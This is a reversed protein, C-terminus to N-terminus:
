KIVRPFSIKFISGNSDTRELTIDGSYAQLIMKVILLGLGLGKEGVKKSIPDVFIKSLHHKSVGRGNDEIYIEINDNIAVTSILINKQKSDSVAEVANDIIIDVVRAFWQPSTRVLIEHDMDLNFLVNVDSHLQGEKLQSVREQLLDNINVIEIGDKSSLPPAIPKELIKLAQREIANLKELIYKVDVSNNTKRRILTVSNFINIAYGELSHRWVASTLGMWALATRGALLSSLKRLETNESELQAIRLELEKEKKNM